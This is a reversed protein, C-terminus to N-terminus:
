YCRPSNIKHNKIEINTSFQRYYSAICLKETHSLVPKLGDSILRNRIWVKIFKLLLSPQWSGQNICLSFNNHLNLSRKCSQSSERSIKFVFICNRAQIYM